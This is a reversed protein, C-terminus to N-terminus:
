FSKTNDAWRDFYELFCNIINVFKTKTNQVTLFHPSNQFGECELGTLHFYLLFVREAIPVKCIMQKDTLQM